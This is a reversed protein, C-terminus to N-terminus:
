GRYRIAFEPSDVQCAYDAYGPARGRNEGYRNGAYAREVRTFPLTHEAFKKTLEDLGRAAIAAMDDFRDAAIVQLGSEAFGYLPCWFATWGDGIANIRDVIRRSLLFADSEVHVIRGFGYTRAIELSFLFSRWWGRHGAVGIRGEHEGFRYVFAAPGAPLQPPLADLVRVDPDDPVFPSADDILFVADRKLPLALHYDLWRRQRARWAHADYSYSTCFLLTRAPAPAPM